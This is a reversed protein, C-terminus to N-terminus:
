WRLFELVHIDASEGQIDGGCTDVGDDGVVVDGAEHVIEVADGDADADVDEFVVEDVVLVVITEGAIAGDEDELGRQCQTGSLQDVLNNEAVILPFDSPRGAVLKTIDINRATVHRELSFRNDTSAHLTNGLHHKELRV